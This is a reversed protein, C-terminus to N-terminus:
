GAAYSAHIFADAPFATRYGVSYHYGIRHLTHLLGPQFGQIPNAIDYCVRTELQLSCDLHVEPTCSGNYYNEYTRILCPREVQPVLGM